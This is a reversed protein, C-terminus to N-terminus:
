RCQHGKGVATHLNLPMFLPPLQLHAERDLSWRHSKKFVTNQSNLDLVLPM